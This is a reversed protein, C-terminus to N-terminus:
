FIYKSLIEIISGLTLPTLQDLLIFTHPHSAQNTQLIKKIGYLEASITLLESVDSNLFLKRDTETKQSIGSIAILDYSFHNQENSIQQLFIKVSPIGHISTYTSIMKHKYIDDFEALLTQAYEGLIHALM